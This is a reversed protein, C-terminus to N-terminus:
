PQQATAQLRLVLGPVEGAPLLPARASRGLNAWALAAPYSSDLMVAEKLSLTAAAAALRPVSVPTLSVGVVLKGQADVGLFTRRRATQLGVYPHNSLATPTLAMGGHVLWVGGLFAGKMGPLISRLAAESGMLPTAFPLITLGSGSWLVLPRGQLADLTPQDTPLTFASLPTLLPSVTSSALQTSTDLLLPSAEGPQRGQLLATLEPRGAIRRTELQDGRELLLRVGGASVAQQQVAAATLPLATSTPLADPGYAENWGRPMQIHIYRNLQMIGPSQEVPGWFELFGLTYGALRAREFTTTDGKGNAYTQFNVVHGLHQELVAKSGRLEDDQRAVSLLALDAPHSRTHAGITVLGEQDLQQLEDWSMKPHDGTQVGVYDTHVFVAAPYGYRKLVPYALDFFGQYSDDFTLVVARPPLPTGRTLHTQLQALTVVHAGHQSLFRMQDEFEAVTCDFWVAGKQQRSRIIDHYTFVPTAQRLALPNLERYESSGLNPVSPLELVPVPPTVVAAAPAAAQLHPGNEAQRRLQQWGVDGALVLGALVTLFILGRGLNM